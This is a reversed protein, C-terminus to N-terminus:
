QASANLAVLDQKVKYLVDPTLAKNINAQFSRPAEQGLADDGHLLNTMVPEVIAAQILRSLVQREPYGDETALEMFKIYDTFKQYHEMVLAQALPSSNITPDSFNFGDKFKSSSPLSGINLQCNELNARISAHGAENEQTSFAGISGHTKIAYWSHFVIWHGYIWNAEEGYALDLLVQWTTCADRYLSIVENIRSTQSSDGFTVNADKMFKPIRPMVASFIKDRGFDWILMNLCTICLDNPSVKKASLSSFCGQLNARLKDFYSPKEGNNACIEKSLEELYAELQEHVVLLLARTNSPLTDFSYCDDKKRNRGSCTCPGCCILIIERYLRLLFRYDDTNPDYVYCLIATFDAASMGPIDLVKRKTSDASMPIDIEAEDEMADATARNQQLIEDKKGDHTVIPWSTYSGGLLNCVVKELLIILERRDREIDKLTTSTESFNIRNFLRKILLLLMKRGSRQLFHLSCVLINWPLIGFPLSLDDRYQRGPAESNINQWDKKKWGGNCFLCDNKTLNAINYDAKFDMRAYTTVQFHFEQEGVKLILGNAAMKALSYNAMSCIKLLPAIDDKGQYLCVYDLNASSRKLKSLLFSALRKKPNGCFQGDTKKSQAVKYWKELINHKRLLSLTMMTLSRNMTSTGDISVGLNVQFPNQPSGDAELEHNGVLTTMGFYLFEEILRWTIVNEVNAAVFKCQKEAQCNLEELRALFEASSKKFGKAAKRKVSTKICVGSTGKSPNSYEQCDDFRGTGYQRVVGISANILVSADALIKSENKKEFCYSSQKLGNHMSGASLRLTTALYSKICQSMKTQQTTSLTVFRGLGFGSGRILRHGRQSLTSDSVVKLRVIPPPTMHRMCSEFVQRIPIEPTQLDFYNGTALTQVVRKLDIGATQM